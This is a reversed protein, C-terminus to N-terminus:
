GGEALEDRADALVARFLREDGVLHDAPLIVMVEDPDREIALVALAIAPATNRGVPESLVAVDPLQERVLGEYRRDTVVTLDDVTLGLEDGETLRRVTKQLLSGDPFLPLFPKPHQPDSLPWLRTGGGGALIVAYM